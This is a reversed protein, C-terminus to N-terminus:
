TKLHKVPPPAGLRRLCQPPLQRLMQRRRRATGSSLVCSRKMTKIGQARQPAKPCLKSLAHSPRTPILTRRSQLVWPCPWTRATSQPQQKKRSLPPIATLMTLSRRMAALVEKWQSLCAVRRRELLSTARTLSKVFCSRLPWRPWLLPRTLRWLLVLPEMALRWARMQLWRPMPLLCRRLNRRSWSNTTSRPAGASLPGLPSPSSEKLISRRQWPLRSSRWSM